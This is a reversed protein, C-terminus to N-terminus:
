QAPLCVHGQFITQAACVRPKEFMAGGDPRLDARRRRGRGALVKVRADTADGPLPRAVILDFSRMFDLYAPLRWAGPVFVYIRKAGLLLKRGVQALEDTSVGISDGCAAAPFREAGSLVQALAPSVRGLRYLMPVVRDVGAPAFEVDMCWDALVAVDLQQRAPMQSRLEAVLASWDPRRSQVAEFNLQLRAADRVLPMARISAALGVMEGDGLPRRHQRGFEVYVVATREGLDRDAHGQSPLRLTRTRPRLQIVPARVIIEGALYAVAPMVRDASPLGALFRLDDSHSWAWLVFTPPIPARGHRPDNAAQAQERELLAQAWSPACLLHALLM